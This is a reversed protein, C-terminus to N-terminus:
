STVETDTPVYPPQHPGGAPVAAQAEDAALLMVAAHSLANPAQQTPEVM